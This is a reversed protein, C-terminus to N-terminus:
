FSVYQLVDSDELESIKEETQRLLSIAIPGDRIPIGAGDRVKEHRKSHGAGTM